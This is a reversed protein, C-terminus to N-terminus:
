RWFNVLDRLISKQIGGRIAKRPKHAHKHGLQEETRDEGNKYQPTVASFHDIVPKL